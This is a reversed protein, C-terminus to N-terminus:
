VKGRQILTRERKVLKVREGGHISLLMPSSHFCVV